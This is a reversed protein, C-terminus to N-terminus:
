FFESSKKNIKERFYEMRKCIFQTEDFNHQLQLSEALNLDKWGDISFNCMPLYGFNQFKKKTGQNDSFKSLLNNAMNTQRVHFGWSINESHQSEFDKAQKWVFTDEDEKAIM